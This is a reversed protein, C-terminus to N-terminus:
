KNIIDRPKAIALKPMNTFVTVSHMPWLILVNGFIQTIFYINCVHLLGFLVCAPLSSIAKYKRHFWCVWQTKKTKKKRKALSDWDTSIYSIQCSIAKPNQKCVYTIHRCYIFHNRIPVLRCAQLHPGWNSILLLIHGPYAVGVNYAPPIM